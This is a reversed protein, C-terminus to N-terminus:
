ADPTCGDVCKGIFADRAEDEGINVEGTQLGDFGLEFFGVSVGLDLGNEDFHVSGDLRVDLAHHILGDFREASDVVTDVIRSDRARRPRPTM